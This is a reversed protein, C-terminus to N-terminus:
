RSGPTAMEAVAQLAVVNFEAAQKCIRKVEQNAARASISFLESISGALIPTLANRQQRIYRDALERGQADSIYTRLSVLRQLGILERRSSHLMAGCDSIDEYAKKENSTANSKPTLKAQTMAFDELLRVLSSDMAEFVSGNPDQPVAPMSTLLAGLVISTLLHRHM